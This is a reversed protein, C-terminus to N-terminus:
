FSHRLETCNIVLKDLHLKHDVIKIDGRNAKLAEMVLLVDLVSLIPGLGRTFFTNIGRLKQDNLKGKFPLRQYLAENIRVPLLGSVNNPVLTDAFLEKIKERKPTEWLWVTVTKALTDSVDPLCPKPVELAYEKTLITDVSYIDRNPLKNSTLSLLSGDLEEADTLGDLSGLDSM